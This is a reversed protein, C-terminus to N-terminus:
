KKFGETIWVLVRVFGWPVLFSAAFGAGWLLIGVIWQGVTREIPDTHRETQKHRENDTHREIWIDLDRLTHTPTV